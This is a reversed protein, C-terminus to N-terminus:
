CPWQMVRFESDHYTLPVADIVAVLVLVLVLASRSHSSQESRSSERGETAARATGRLHSLAVARKACIQSDPRFGSTYEYEDVIWAQAPAPRQTSAMLKSRTRSGGPDQAKRESRESPLVGACWAPHSPALGTGPTMRRTAPNKEPPDSSPLLTREGIPCPVQSLELERPTRPCGETRSTVMRVNQHEGMSAAHIGYTRRAMYM